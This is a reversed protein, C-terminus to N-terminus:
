PQGGPVPKLYTKPHLVAGPLLQLAAKVLANPKVSLLCAHVVHFGAGVNFTQLHGSARLTVTSRVM